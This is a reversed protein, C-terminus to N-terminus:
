RLRNRSSRHKVFQVVKIAGWAGACGSVLYALLPAGIAVAHPLSDYSTDVAIMFLGLGIISCGGFAVPAALALFAHARLRPVGLYLFFAALSTIVFPIAYIIQM